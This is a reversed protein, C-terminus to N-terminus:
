AMAPPPMKKNARFVGHKHLLFGGAQRSAGLLRSNSCFLRLHERERCVAPADAPQHCRRHLHAPHMAARLGRIVLTGLRRDPDTRGRPRASVATGTAFRIQSATSRSNPSATTHHPVKAPENTPHNDIQDPRPCRNLCLNPRQPLLDVNQPPSSRLSEQETDEVAQCENTKIPQKWLNAIRQRDHLRVGNDTPM